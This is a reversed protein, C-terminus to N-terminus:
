LFQDRFDGFALLRNNNAYTIRDRDYSILKDSPLKRYALTAKKAEEAKIGEPSERYEAETKAKAIASNAKLFGIVWKEHVLSGGYKKTLEANKHKFIQFSPQALALSPKTLELMVENVNKELTKPYFRLISNKTIAKNDVHIIVFGNADAIEKVNNMLDKLLENM